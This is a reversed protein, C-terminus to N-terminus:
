VHRQTVKKYTTMPIDISAVDIAPLFLFVIIRKRLQEEAEM